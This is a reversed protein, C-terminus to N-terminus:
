CWIHKMCMFAEAYLTNIRAGRYTAQAYINEASRGHPHLRKETIYSEMAKVKAQMNENSLPVYITPTFVETGINQETSSLIEGVLITEVFPATHHRCAVSVARFTNRHDQHNDGWFTTLITTPKITQIINEVAVKLTLFDNSIQEETINLYHVDTAGLYKASTKAYLLQTRTRTDHSDRIFAIHINHGQQSLKHLTGGALLTEDDAHPVIVLTTQSSDLKKTIHKM